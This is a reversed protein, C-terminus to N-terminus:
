HRHKHSKGAHPLRSPLQIVDVALVQNVHKPKPGPKDLGLGDAPIENSFATLEPQIKQALDQLEKSTNCVLLNFFIISIRDLLEGSRDLAALTNDFTPTGSNNAIDQIEKRAIELAHHFAPEYHENKIENFPPTQYPTQWPSTLPNFSM